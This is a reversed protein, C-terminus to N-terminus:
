KYIRPKGHGLGVVLTIEIKKCIISLFVNIDLICCNENTMGPVPYSALDKLMLRAIRMLFCNSDILMKDCAGCTYREENHVPKFELM